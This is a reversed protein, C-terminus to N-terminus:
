FSLKTQRVNYRQKTKMRKKQPSCSVSKCTKGMCTQGSKKEVVFYDGDRIDYTYLGKMPFKMEEPGAIKHLEKDYYWVRMACPSLQFLQQLRNKFQKVRQRVSITMERSMEGYHITVHFFVEPTLDIKVLPDLDGHVAILESFRQPRKEHSIDLYRRIFSREADEKEGESIPDGGNLVQLYLRM